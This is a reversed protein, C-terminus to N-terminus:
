LLASRQLCDDNFPWDLHLLVSSFFPSLSYGKWLGPAPRPRLGAVTRLRLRERISSSLPSSSSLSHNGTSSFSSCYNPPCDVVSVSSKLTLNPRLGINSNNGPHCEQSALSVRHALSRRKPTHIRLNTLANIVHTDQIPFSGSISLATPPWLPPVGEVAHHSEHHHQIAKRTPLSWWPELAQTELQTSSPRIRRRRLDKRKLSHRQLQFFTKPGMFVTTSIDFSVTFTL